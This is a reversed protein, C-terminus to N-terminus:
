NEFLPVTKNSIKFHDPMTNLLDGSSFGHIRFALLLSNLIAPVGAAGKERDKLFQHKMSQVSNRIQKWRTFGIRVPFEPDIDIIPEQVEAGSKLGAVALLYLPKREKEPFENLYSQVEKRWQDRSQTDSYDHRKAEIILHFEEFEIFLDPEVFLENQTGIPNWHPWFEFSLMPGSTAPLVPQYCSDTIIKWLLDSPLYFLLEFVTSTFSDEGEKFLHGVNYPIGELHIKRGCKNHSLYHLM